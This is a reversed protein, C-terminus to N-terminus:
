DQETVIKRRLNYFKPYLIWIFLGLPIFNMIATFTTSSILFGVIESIIKVNLPNAILYVLALFELEVLDIIFIFAGVVFSDQKLKKKSIDSKMGIRLTLESGLIPFFFLSFIIVTIGLTVNTTNLIFEPNLSVDMRFKKFVYSHLLLGFFIQIFFLKIATFLAFNMFKETEEDKWFSDKNQMM